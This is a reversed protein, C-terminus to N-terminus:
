LRHHKLYVGITSRWSPIVPQAGPQTRGEIKSGHPLSWLLIVDGPELEEAPVQLRRCPDM